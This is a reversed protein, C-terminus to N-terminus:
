KNIFTWLYIESVTLGMFLIVGTKLKTIIPLLEYKAILRDQSLTETTKVWIQGDYWGSEEYAITAQILRNYVYNWGLYVRLFIITLIISSSASIVIINKILNDNLTSTLFVICGCNIYTITTLIIVNKIFNEATPTTWNFDFSQRLQLYENLPRQELPVPCKKIDTNM